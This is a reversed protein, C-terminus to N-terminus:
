LEISQADLKSLKRLNEARIELANKFNKVKSEFTKNIKKPIPIKIERIRGGISGLTSQIFILSRIDRQVSQMSLLYLFKYPDMKSKDKNLSIIKLHSQVICKSNHNHLIATRGIRYRGDAVMLIDGAKLNQDKSYKDYIEKSVSKSPDISIEFNNIDSTRVFPIEGTGYSDSGVEHGKKITLWGEEILESFSVLEANMERLDSELLKNKDKAVYRPVLYYPDLHNSNLNFNNKNSNWDSSIKIFDNKHLNGNSDINRGRRDHGCNLAVAIKAKSDKINKGKQFFLVNTKIDTSPQFTTRPCDLLGTITGNDRLFDWVYGNSKNGFIGEPLVIGLRGGDKLLMLCLEIFIVQPDAKTKLTSSKTWRNLEKSFKWEYGLDFQKLIKQDKIPINAGFPPNTLVYDANFPSFQKKDSRLKKLDLSNENLVLANKPSSITLLSSSLLFLDRDKDIGILRGHKLNKENWYAITESLFGGTGCAPDVIKAEEIPALIEIMCRVLSKPTFFQGKDGRINPGVLAQFSDGLM